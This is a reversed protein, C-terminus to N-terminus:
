LEDRVVFNSNDKDEKEYKKYRRHKQRRVFEQLQMFKDRFFVHDEVFRDVGPHFCITRKALESLISYTIILSDISTDPRTNELRDLLYKKIEDYTASFNPTKIHFDQYVEHNTACYGAVCYYGKREDPYLLPPFVRIENTGILEGVSGLANAFYEILIKDTACEAKEIAKELDSYFNKEITDAETVAEKIIFNIREIKSDIDKSIDQEIEKTDKVIKEELRDIAERHKKAMDDAKDLSQNIVQRAHECVDHAGSIVHRAAGSIDGAANEVSRGLFIGGLAGIGAALLGFFANASSTALIILIISLRMFRKM